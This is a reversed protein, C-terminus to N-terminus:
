FNPLGLNSVAMRGKAFRLNKTNYSLPSVFCSKMLTGRSASSLKHFDYLKYPSPHPRSKSSSLETNEAAGYMDCIILLVIIFVKCDIRVCICM